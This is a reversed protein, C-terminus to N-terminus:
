QLAHAPRAHVDVALCDPFDAITQKHQDARFAAVGLGFGLAQEVSM